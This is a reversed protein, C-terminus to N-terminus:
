DNLLRTVNLRSAQELRAFVQDAEDAGVRAPLEMFRDEDMLMPKLPEPAATGSDVVLPNDAGNRPASAGFSVINEHVWPKPTWQPPEPLDTAQPYDYPEDFTLPNEKADPAFRYIPWFHTQVGRRQQIISHSLSQKIGFMLCPCYAIIISPGPYAAAEKFAQVVQNMNGGIAVSAVYVNRYTMMMQGLNKHYERKGNYSFKTCAGYPTAKSTQGGTNSYCQTDMVLINIDIGSALVHDIGAFGIDYAWGDGGIAWVSKKGLLDAAAAIQAAYKAQPKAAVIRKVELGAAYSSDCDDKVKMWAELASKLEADTDADGLASEALEILAQRRHGLAVAIGYGYEANDEFLSNGWAPGLGKSNRCYSMSPADAGWISSCGTANAIVTHEGFLQTLLKVYPTEGCGGCAGSFELLPEYLQSGLISFRPLLGAKSAIHAQAFALNERQVERDSEVPVMPLAQAPCVTSCSACGTCDDPYVQIRWKMGELAKGWADKTVFTGPADALEAQTAVVPRIAAHSCVFSCEVCEICKDADWRPIFTAVSRKEYATTGAPFVGDASMASVPLRDGKLENMPVAVRAVWEPLSALYAKRAAEEEATSATAWSAPYDIQVVAAAAEDIAAANAEVVNQGEHGYMAAAASKVAAIAEDFPVVGTLKFFVAEMIVNIHAGLGHRSAIASADVNYFRIHRSAVIRKMSAPIFKEMQAATWPSNLVFIGGDALNGLLDYKGVYTCKNCGVYDARVIDYPARVPEKSYRLQSITYGFSKKASYQFHAQVHMGTKDYIISAIQKTAGVTGDNGIGYFVVQRCSSDVADINPDYSLSLHTVDDDIGVTFRRRPQPAAMEDFVAKAMGINFDKSSLGYRGGIVRVQRGQEFLAACVDTYLPEGVAGPEKDRDLVAVVRATAPIAAVFDKASFPRYLRVNIHGVRYGRANLYDVAQELVKSGSGMAVTVYEAQPDGYYDFIRYHRGTLAALADMKAQVIAPVADYYPNCAERAQFFIDPNQATGRTDSHEPNMARRRFAAVKDMDVLSAIDSYDLLEVNQMENATRYADFFHLVPVSSEIASLHAVIAMDHAEQVSTSAMMTFGTARVAMVDSHDGFISLAHTAVTRAGIHFVVPYLNGAMKYMNPIMLLLGQSNTFTTALAGGAAAGHCAGAAGLESELVKVQMPQGYVNLRGQCSWQDALEGMEAIPSIPYITAIESLAYAAHTAALSGDAIVKKQAM